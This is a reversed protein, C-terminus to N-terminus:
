TQKNTQQLIPYKYVNHVHSVTLAGVHSSMGFACFVLWRRQYLVPRCVLRAAHRGWRIVGLVGGESDVLEPTFWGGGLKHIDESKEGGDTTKQKAIVGPHNGAGHDQQPIMKHQAGYPLLQNHTHCYSRRGDECQKPTKEVVPHTTFGHNQDRAEDEGRSGEAEGEGRIPVQEQHSPDYHASSYTLGSLISSIGVSALHQLLAPHINPCRRLRQGLMVEANSWSIKDTPFVSTM